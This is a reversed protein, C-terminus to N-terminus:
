YTEATKNERPADFSCAGHLAGEGRARTKRGAKGGRRTAPVGCISINRYQCIDAKKALRAAGRRQAGDSHKEAGADRVTSANAQKVVGQGTM